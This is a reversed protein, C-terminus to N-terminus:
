AKVACFVYMQSNTGTLLNAFQKDIEIVETESLEGLWAEYCEDTLFVIPVSKDVIFGGDKLSSEIIIPARTNKQIYEREERNYFHLHTTYPCEKNWSSFIFVGGSKLSEYIWRIFRQQDSIPVHNFTGMMCTILSYKDHEPSHDLINKKEIHIDENGEARMQCIRVADEDIDYGIAQFGNASLWLPYRCTACGIDLSIPKGDSPLHSQQLYNEVVKKELIKKAHDSRNPYEYKIYNVIGYALSQTIDAKEKKQTAFSFLERRSRSGVLSRYSPSKSETSRTLIQNVAGGLGDLISMVEPVYRKELSSINAVLYQRAADYNELGVLAKALLVVALSYHPHSSDVIQLGDIARQYDGISLCLISKSFRGFDSDERSAREEIINILENAQKENIFDSSLADILYPIVVTSSVGDKIASAIDVKKKGKSGAVFREIASIQQDNLDINFCSISGDGLALFLHGLREDFSINWIEAGQNSKYINKSPNAISWISLDGSKTGTIIFKGLTTVSFIDRGEAKARNVGEMSTVFIYPGHTGTTFYNGDQSYSINYCNNKLSVLKKLGEKFSYRYVGDRDANILIAEDGLKSLGYLPSPIDIRELLEGKQFDFLYLGGNWGTAFIVNSCICIDWIPEETEYHLIQSDDAYIAVLGKNKTKNAHGSSFFITGDKTSTHAVGWVPMEEVYEAIISGYYDFMYSKGNVDGVSLTQSYADVSVDIIASGVKKRWLHSLM